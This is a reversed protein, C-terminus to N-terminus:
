DIHNWRIGNIILSIISQSVGFKKSLARQGYNKDRPIYNKKIYIVDCDTLKSNTNDVGKISQQNNTLYNEKINDGHTTWILNDVRNDTKIHNKHGVEPLNNPNPIYIEAVLRHIKYNKNEPYIVVQRYDRCKRVKLPKYVDGWKRFVDGNETIFYQTDRFRKM